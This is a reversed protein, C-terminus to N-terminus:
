RGPFYKRKLEAFRGDAMIPALEEDALIGAFDGYGRELATELWKVSAATDGVLAEVRALEYANQPDIEGQITEIQRYSARAEDFRGLIVMLNGIKQHVQFAEPQLALAKRYCREAEVYDLRQLALDGFAAWGMVNEPSLKLLDRLVREANDYDNLQTYAIGLNYRSIDAGPHLEIARRYAAIADNRRPQVAYHLSEGLAEWALFHGPSKSVTDRWLTQADRWVPVRQLSLVSFCLLSAFTAPVIWRYGKNAAARDVGWAFVAAFGIMPFYLYRDNMLTVLPVIQSVPLFSVAAMLPWFALRRDHRYLRYVFYALCVLLILSGVVAADPTHRVEPDYLASLAVPWVLLRLYTCIVPLMTLFTAWPSGGYYGARGGGAGWESYNPTQSLLALIATALAVALFPIKDKLRKVTGPTPYYCHDFLIIAVPFIVAISKALVALLMAVLSVLYYRRGIGGSKERYARYWQWALLFFLMALLNKRQSIWAVTEVQVPHVLFVAAGCCAALRSSVSELLLRYVLLSNCYHLVLNTLLYGGPWLGWIRFDLMYSFM